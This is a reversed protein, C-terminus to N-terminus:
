KIRHNTGILEIEKALVNIREIFRENKLENDEKSGPYTKGIKAQYNKRLRDISFNSTFFTTKEHTMRYNLVTFLVDDRLWESAPEGGIDDLFLFDAIQLQELIKKSSEVHNNFSGKLLNALNSVSYFAITKKHNKAADIALFRFLTTKGLGLSGWLYIGYRKKNALVDQYYAVVQQKLLFEEKSNIRTRIIEQSKSDDYNLTFFKLNQENTKYFVQEQQLPDFDTLLFRNLFNQRNQQYVLHECPVFGKYFQNNEYKLSAKYGKQSQQCSPFNEPNQCDFHNNVYWNIASHYLELTQESVQHTKVLKNVLTQNELRDIEM